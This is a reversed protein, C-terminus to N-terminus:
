TYFFHHFHYSTQSLPRKPFNLQMSNIGANKYHAYRIHLICANTGCAPIAYYLWGSYVEYQNTRCGAIAVLRQLLELRRSLKPPKKIAVLGNERM